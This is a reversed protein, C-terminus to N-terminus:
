SPRAVEGTLGALKRKCTSESVRGPDGEVAILKDSIM